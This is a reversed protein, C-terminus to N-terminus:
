MGDWVEETFGRARLEDPTPPRSQQGTVRQGVFSGAGAGVLVNADFEVSSKTVPGVKKINGPKTKFSCGEYPSGSTAAAVRKKRKRNYAAENHRRRDPSLKSNSDDSTLVRRRPTQTSKLPLDMHGEPSSSRSPPQSSLEQGECDDDEDSDGNLRDEELQMAVELLHAGNLTSDHLKISSRLRPREWDVEVQKIILHHSAPSAYVCVISNFCLKPLLYDVCQTIMSNNILLVSKLSELERKSIGMVTYLVFINTSESTIDTSLVPWISRARLM